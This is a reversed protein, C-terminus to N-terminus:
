GILAFITEKKSETYVALLHRSNLLSNAEPLRPTQYRREMLLVTFSDASKGLLLSYGPLLRFDRAGDLLTM